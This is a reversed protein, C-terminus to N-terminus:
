ESGLLQRGLDMPQNRRAKPATGLPGTRVQLINPTSPADAEFGLSLAGCVRSNCSGGTQGGLGKPSRATARWVGCIVEQSFVEAESEMGKAAADHPTLDRDVFLPAPHAVHLVSGKM